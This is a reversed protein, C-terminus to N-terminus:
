KVARLTPIEMYSGGIPVPQEEPQSIPDSTSPRGGLGSFATDAAARRSSSRPSLRSALRESGVGTPRWTADPVLQRARRIQVESVDVGTVLHGATTVDRAVPVGCGCGLDVVQSGPDLADLLAAIWPKYQEADADDDRYRWSLADYGSRVVEVPAD